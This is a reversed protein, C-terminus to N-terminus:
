AEVGMEECVRMVADNLEEVLAEIDEESMGKVMDKTVSSKWIVKAM